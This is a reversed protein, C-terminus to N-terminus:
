EKFEVKVKYGVLAFMDSVSSQVNKKATNLVGQTTAEELIQKKAENALEYAESIDAKERFLGENSFVQVNDFDITPEGLIKAGPLTITATKKEENLKIDAETITSFDVGAKVGGPIVVLLDRKTGPLNLGIEQGFIKNDSREIMVKTHAEATTLENLNQIREVISGKSETFTSGKILSMTAFPLIFAIALVIITAWVYWQTFFNRMNGKKRLKRFNMPETSELITASQEELKLEQLIKELEQIKKNPVM